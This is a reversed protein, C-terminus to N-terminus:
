QHNVLWENVARAIAVANGSDSHVCLLECDTEKVLRKSQAAALEASCIIAGATNRPCMTWDKDYARDCFGEAFVPIGLSRFENLVSSGIPGVFRSQPFFSTCISWYWHAFEIDRAIAHYLAGHAKIMSVHANCEDAIQAFVSLQSQLSARLTRRDLEIDRRGFGERDPYSPHVGILCGHECAAKIAERISDEDGAHGGCAISVASVYQLLAMEVDRGLATRAEGTDCGFYVRPQDHM